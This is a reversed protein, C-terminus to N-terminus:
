GAVQGNRVEKLYGYLTFRSIGLADAAREVGGRILFLGREHLIRAARLRDERGMLKAPMGVEEIADGIMQAAIESIDAQTRGEIPMASGTSAMSLVEDLLRWAMTFVSFDVNICFAIVPKGEPTRLILSASRLERGDRLQTRYGISLTSEKMGSDLLTVAVDKMPGGIVPGGLRRGSVEGNKIAVISREPIRLDHLVVECYSGVTQGIADVLPRLIALVEDVKNNPVAAVPAFVREQLSPMGEPSPQPAPRM